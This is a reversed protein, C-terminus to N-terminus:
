HSVVLIRGKVQYLGHVNTIFGLILLCHSKPAHEEWPTCWLLPALNLWLLVRLGLWMGNAMAFWIALDLMLSSPVDVTGPSSPLPARINASHYDLSNYMVLEIQLRCSGSFIRSLCSFTNCHDTLSTVWPCICRPVADGIWITQTSGTSCTTKM